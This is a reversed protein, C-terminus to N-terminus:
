EQKRQLKARQAREILGMGAGTRATARELPTALKNIPEVIYEALGAEAAYWALSQYGWARGFAEEYRGVRRFAEALMVRAETTKGQLAYAAAIGAFTEGDLLDEDLKKAENLAADFDGLHARAVAIQCRTWSDDYFEDRDAQAQAAKLGKVAEALYKKAEDTRRLIALDIAILANHDARELSDVAWTEVLKTVSDIDGADLQYEAILYYVWSFDLEEDQNNKAAEDLAKMAKDIAKRYAEQDGRWLHAVAVDATAGIRTDKGEITEITKAAQDFHGAMAQAWAISWGANDQNYDEKLGGRLKTAVDLYHSAQDLKGSLALGASAYCLDDIKLGNVDDAEAGAAVIFMADRGGAEMWWAPDQHNPTGPEAIAVSTLILVFLLSSRHM